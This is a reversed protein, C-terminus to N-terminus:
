QDGHDSHCRICFNYHSTLQTVLPANDNYTKSKLGFRTCTSTIILELILFLNDHNIM